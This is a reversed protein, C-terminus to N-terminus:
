DLLYYTEEGGKEISDPLVEENEAELIEDIKLKRAQSKIKLAAFRGKLKSIEVKDFENLDKAFKNNFIKLFEYYHKEAQEWDEDTYQPSDRRVNNVFNKFGNLYTDKSECAYLLLVILIFLVSKM